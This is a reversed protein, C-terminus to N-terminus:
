FGTLSISLGQDSTLAEVVEDYSSGQVHFNLCAAVREHRETVTGAVADGTGVVAHGEAGDPLAVAFYFNATGALQIPGTIQEADFSAMARFSSREGTADLRIAEQGL